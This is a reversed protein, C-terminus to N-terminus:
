AARRATRGVSAGFRRDAAARRTAHLTVGAVGLVAALCVAVTGTWGASHFASAGLTGGLSNGINLASHNLAAAISQADGAVDMLRAQIVPSLAASAAGVLFVRGRPATRPITRDLIPEDHGGPDRAHAITM